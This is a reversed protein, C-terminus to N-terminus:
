PNSNPGIVEFGDILKLLFVMSFVPEFEISLV